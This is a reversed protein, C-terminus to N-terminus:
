RASMPCTATSPIAETGVPGMIMVISCIVYSFQVKGWNPETHWTAPGPSTDAWSPILLRGNKLQIGHGPGTGLYHWSPDKAQQTIELPKSWTAGEDQSHIAFARQNNKCFLLWITGTDYDM